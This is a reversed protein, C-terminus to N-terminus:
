AKSTLIVMKKLWDNREVAADWNWQEYEQYEEDTLDFADLPVKATFQM